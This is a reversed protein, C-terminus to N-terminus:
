WRSKRIDWNRGHTQRGGADHHGEHALMLQAYAPLALFSPVLLVSAVKVVWAKIDRSVLKM